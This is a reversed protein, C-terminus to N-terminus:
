SSSANGVVNGHADTLLTGKSNDLLVLRNGWPDQVVVCRGIQIDFPPVVISGGAEVIRNAAEDASDVMLDTEPENRETQLVIEARSDPLHLGAAHETRWILEHGLRDRYYKLGADLDNVYLQISDVRSILPKPLNQNV